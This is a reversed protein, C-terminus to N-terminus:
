GSKPLLRTALGAVDPIGSPLLAVADVPPRQAAAERLWRLLVTKGNGRPGYLILESPPPKGSRLRQLLGEFLQKETERGALFPPMRGPGPQFPGLVDTEMMGADIRAEDAM